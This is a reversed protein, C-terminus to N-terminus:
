SAFFNRGNTSLIKCLTIESKSLTHYLYEFVSDNQIVSTFLFVQYEFACLKCDSFM